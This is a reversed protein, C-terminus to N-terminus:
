KGTQSARIKKADIDWRLGAIEFKHVIQSKDLNKLIEKLQGRTYNLVGLGKLYLALVQTKQEDSLCQFENHLIVTEVETQHIVLSFDVNEYSASINELSTALSLASGPYAQELLPLWKHRVFSRLDEQAPDVLFDQKKFALYEEIQARSISLLPRLNRGVNLSMAELGQPGTGRILRMLRTELLDDRHHGWVRWDGKAHLAMQEQRFDRLQSESALQHNENFALFWPIGLRLCLAQTWDKSHDRFQTNQHTGHHCHLARLEIGLAGALVKLILLSATSDAGGSLAVWLTEGRLPLSQLARHVSFELPHWTNM